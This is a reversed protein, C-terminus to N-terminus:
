IHHANYLSIAQIVFYAIIYMKIYLLISRAWAHVCETGNVESMLNAGETPPTLPMHSVHFAPPTATPATWGRAAVWWEVSWM